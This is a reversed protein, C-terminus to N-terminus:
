DELSLLVKRLLANLQRLEAASLAQLLDQEREMGQHVYTEWAKRGTATPRVV